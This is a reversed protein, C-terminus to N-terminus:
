TVQDLSGGLGWALCFLFVKELFLATTEQRMERGMKECLVLVMRCQVVEPVGLVPTCQSSIFAVLKEMYRDILPKFAARHLM